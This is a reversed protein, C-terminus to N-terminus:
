TPNSVTPLHNGFYGISIKKSTFDALIHMRKNGEFNKVHQVFLTKGLHPHKFERQRAFKRKEMTAKSEGSIRLTSNQKLAELNNSNMIASDLNKLANIIKGFDNISVSSSFFNKLASEFYIINPFDNKDQVNLSRFYTKNKQREKTLKTIYVKLHELSAINPVDILEEKWENNEDWNKIIPIPNPLWNEHSPFSLAHSDLNSAVGLSSVEIDRNCSLTFLLGGIAERLDDGLEILPCNVKSLVNTVLNSSDRDLQNIWEAFIFDDAYHLANWNGHQEDVQNFCIGELDALHIIEFFLKLKSICEDSSSFPLSAENIILDSHM